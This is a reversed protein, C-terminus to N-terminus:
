DRLFETSVVGIDPRLDAGFESSNESFELELRARALEAQARHECAWPTPELGAGHKINESFMEYFTDRLYAKNLYECLAATSNVGLPLM